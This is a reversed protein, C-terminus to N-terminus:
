YNVQESEVIEDPFAEIQKGDSFEIQWMPLVELDFHEDDVSVSNLVKFEMGNYKRYDDSSSKFTKAFGKKQYLEYCKNIFAKEEDETILSDRSVLRDLEEFTKVNGIVEIVNSM